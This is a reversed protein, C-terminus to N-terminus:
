LEKIKETEKAKGTNAIIVEEPIDPHGASKALSKAIKQWSVTAASGYTVQLRGDLLVVDTGETRLARAAGLVMTELEKRRKVAAAEAVVSELYIDVAIEHNAEAIAKDFSAKEALTKLLAHDQPAKPPENFNFIFEEYYFKAAAIYAKLFVDDRPVKEYLPFVPAGSEDVGVAAFWAYPAEAVYIQHQVQCWYYPLGMIALKGASRSDWLKKRSPFAPCKAELPFGYPAVVSPDSSAPVLADLSALLWSDHQATATVEKESLLLHKTEFERIVLGENRQGRETADNGRFRPILGTKAAWLNWLTHEFFSEIGVALLPEIDLTVGKTAAYDRLMIANDKAVIVAALSATWSDNRAEYWGESHVEVTLRKM